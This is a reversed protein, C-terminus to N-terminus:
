RPLELVLEEAGFGHVNCRARIRVAAVDAPIAVGGLSRTFPMETVHPHLLERTGYLEDTEADRVEWADAYHDWGEDNHLVTVDFSWMGPSTERARVDIVAAFDPRESADAGDGRQQASATGGAALLLVGLLAALTRTKM